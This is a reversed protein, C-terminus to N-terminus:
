ITKETIKRVNPVAETKECSVGTKFVTVKDFDSMFFTFSEVAVLTSVVLFFFVKKSPTTFM